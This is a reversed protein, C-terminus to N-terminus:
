KPVTGIAAMHDLVMKLEEVEIPLRLFEQAGERLSQLILDASTEKAASIIATDPCDQNLRQILGIAQSEDTGLNIIVASPKHQVVVEYVQDPDNGGSLLKARSDTNLAARINTFDDLDKSLVVITIPQETM